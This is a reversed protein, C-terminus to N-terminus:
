AARGVPPEAAIATLGRGAVARTACFTIAASALSCLALFYLGMEFSKTEDKIWGV